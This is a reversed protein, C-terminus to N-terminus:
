RPVANFAHPVLAPLAKHLAPLRAPLFWEDGVALGAFRYRRLTMVTAQDDGEDMRMEEATWVGDAKMARGVRFRKSPTRSADAAFYDAGLLFPDDAAVYFTARVWRGPIPPQRRAELQVVSRNLMTATGGVRYHVGATPLLWRMEDYTFNSGLLGKGLMDSGLTLVHGSGAPLFLHVALDAPGDEREQQLYATGRLGVPAELVYLMDTGQASRRWINVVEFTRVSRGANLLDVTVRRWGPAGVNRANYARVIAEATSPRKQFGPFPFALASFSLVLLSLAACVGSGIM